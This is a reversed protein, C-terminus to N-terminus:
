FGRLFSASATEKLSEVVERRKDYGSKLYVVVVAMEALRRGLLRGRRGGADEDEHVEVLVVLELGKRETEPAANEM